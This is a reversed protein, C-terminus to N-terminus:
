SKGILTGLLAVVGELKTGKPAALVARNVEETFALLSVEKGYDSRIIDHMKAVVDSIRAPSDGSRASISNLLFRFRIITIDDERVIRGANISALNFEPSNKASEGAAYVPSGVITSGVVALMMALVIRLLFRV